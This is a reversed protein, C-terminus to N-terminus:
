DSNQWTLIGTCPGFGYLPYLYFDMDYDSNKLIKGSATEGIGSATSFSVPPEPPQKAITVYVWAECSEGLKSRDVSLFMTIYRAHLIADIADATESDIGNACCGYWKPGVFYDYLQQEQNVVEDFLPVYVGETQPQLCNTGGVQNTYLVGSPYHVILGLSTSDYLRIVPKTM